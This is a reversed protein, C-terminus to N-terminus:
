RADEWSYSIRYTKHVEGSTGVCNALLVSSVAKDTKYELYTGSKGLQDGKSFLVFNVNHSQFQHKQLHSYVSPM